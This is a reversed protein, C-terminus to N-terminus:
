LDEAWIPPILLPFGTSATPFVATNVSTNFPLGGSKKTGERLPPIKILRLPQESYKPMSKKKLLM